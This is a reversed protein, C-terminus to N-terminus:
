FNYTFGVRAFNDNTAGEDFGFSGDNGTGLVMDVTAKNWKIGAGLTTTTADSVSSASTGTTKTSSLLSLPQSIAGRLTLWSNMEAEVGAIIPVITANVKTDDIKQEVIVASAGYFFDVGESKMSNIVGLELVNNSKLEMQKTGNVKVEGSGLSYSGYYYLSDMRYGGSVAASSTSNVEIESNDFAAFVGGNTGAQIETSGVLGIRAQADWVGNNAGVLLGGINQKVSTADITDAGTGYTNGAKFESSAYFLGAGWAIDGAKTAYTLQLPNSQALAQSLVGAGGTLTTSVAADVGAAFDAYTTSSRGLYLSWASDGMKRIFGGEAEQNATASGFEITAAEYNVAQDPERTFVEQIDVLHRADQLAELRAKSAHASVSALAVVTVLMLKNM